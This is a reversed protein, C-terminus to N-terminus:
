KKQEEPAEMITANVARSLSTLNERKVKRRMKAIAEPDLTISIAQKCATKKM